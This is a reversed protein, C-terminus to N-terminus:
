EIPLFADPVDETPQEIAPQEMTGGETIRKRSECGTLLVFSLVVLATGIAWLNDAHRKM